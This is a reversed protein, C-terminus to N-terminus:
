LVGDYETANTGPKTANQRKILEDVVQTKTGFFTGSIRSDFDTIMMNAGYAFARWRQADIRDREREVDDSIRSQQRLESQKRQEERKRLIRVTAAYTSQIRHGTVRSYYYIPANDSVISQQAELRALLEEHDAYEIPISSGDPLIVTAWWTQKEKM